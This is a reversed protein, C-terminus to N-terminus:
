RRRRSSRPWPRSCSWRISRGAPRWAPLVPHEGGEPHQSCCRARASTTSCLAPCCSRRVLRAPDAAASTAWTRTSRKAAPSSSSSRASSSSATALRQPRLLAVAHMPNFAALVHPNACSGRCASCARADVFWLVMVPGFLAGVSATGRAPDVFLGILIVVTIPVVYPEFVHTAVDLGEVASLVSIAPTIMGDGYLLAAGFLGVAILVGRSRRAADPQQSVLAMLALIGGEGRNDARMVFVLYKISIVLILSWFILSLM